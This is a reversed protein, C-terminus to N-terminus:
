LTGMEAMSVAGGLGVVVHDLVNIDLLGLGEKLRQTMRYDPRSPRPSGSPHNHTFIVHKANLELARRAVVRAHVTAEDITGHFLREFQILELQTNLFLCCFYEDPESAIQLQCYAKVDKPYELQVKHTLRSELIRLAQQITDDQIPYARQASM